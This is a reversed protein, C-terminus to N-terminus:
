RLSRRTRPRRRNVPQPDAPRQYRHLLGDTSPTAATFGAATLAVVLDTLAQQSARVDAVVDADQSIQPPVRGHELAHLLVMQGGILTWPASLTEALDLLVHWLQDVPSALPPLTVRSRIM